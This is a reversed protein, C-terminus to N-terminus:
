QSYKLASMSLNKGDTTYVSPGFIGLSFKLIYKNQTSNPKVNQMKIFSIVNCSFFQTSKPLLVRPKESSFTSERICFMAPNAELIYNKHLLNWSKFFM